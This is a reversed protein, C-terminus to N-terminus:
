FYRWKLIPFAVYNWYKVKRSIYKSILFTLELLFFNYGIKVFECNIERMILCLFCTKVFRYLFCLKLVLTYLYVYCIM